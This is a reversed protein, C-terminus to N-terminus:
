IFAWLAGALVELAGCGLDSVAKELSGFAM